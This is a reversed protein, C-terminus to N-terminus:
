EGGSGTQLLRRKAGELVLCTLVGTAFAGTDIGIRNPRTEVEASISHGHVVVAGHDKRSELFEGRIWLQDELDQKELSTGPRVGAHVFYYDGCRWHSACDTLFARHDDPLSLDPHVQLSRAKNADRVLAGKKILAEVHEFVTVKSVDLEDAIEQMTPSYGNRHRADRIYTLIQLQRPTLRRRDHQRDSRAM